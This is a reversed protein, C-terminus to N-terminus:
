PDITEDIVENFLKIAEDLDDCLLSHATGVTMKLDTRMEPSIIDGIDDILETGFDTAKEIDNELYFKLLNNQWIFVQDARSDADLPKSSKADVMQILNQPSNEAIKICEKFTKEVATHDQKIQQIGAIRQHIFIHM